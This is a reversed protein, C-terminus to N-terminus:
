WYLHHDPPPMSASGASGNGNLTDGPAQVADADQLLQNVGHQLHGVVM